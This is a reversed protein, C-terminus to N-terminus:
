LADRSVSPREPWSSQPLSERTLLEAPSSEENVFHYLSAGKRFPFKGDCRILFQFIWGLFMVPLNELFRDM